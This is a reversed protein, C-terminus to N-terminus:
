ISVEIIDVALWHAQAAREKQRELDTRDAKIRLIELVHEVAAAIKTPDVESLHVCGYGHPKEGARYTQLRTRWQPLVDEQTSALIYLGDQEVSRVMVVSAGEVTGAFVPLNRYWNETPELKAQDALRRVVRQLAQRLTDAILMATKVRTPLDDTAAGRTAYRVAGHHLYVGDRSRLLAKVAPATLVAQVLSPAAGRIQYRKDLKSDGLQIDSIGLWRALTETASEHVTALGHLRESDTVQVLTKWGPTDKLQGHPMQSVLSVQVDYDEIRATLQKANPNWELGSPEAHAAWYAHVKKRQALLDASLEESPYSM